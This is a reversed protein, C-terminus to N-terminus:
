LGSPDIGVARLRLIVQDRAGPNRAIVDRADQLTQQPNARAATVTEKSRWADASSQQPAVTTSVRGPQNRQGEPLLYTGSRMQESNRKNFEIRRQAAEVANQYIKERVEPAQSVAGQVDLLIKREGETPNGGFTARLNELAQNTVTNSLEETAVGADGVSGPLFSAGYGIKGAFPGSFAKRNLDLAKRLSTVANAGAEVAKDAELVAKDDINALQTARTKRWTQPDVGPPPQPANPDPQPMGSVHPVEYGNPGKQVTIKEGGPLTLDITKPAFENQVGLTARERAAAYEPSAQYKSQEFQEKRLAFDRADRQNMLALQALNFNGPLGQSQLWDSTERQQQAQRYTNALDGLPSFDILPPSAM